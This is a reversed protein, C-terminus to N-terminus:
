RAMLNIFHGLVSIEGQSTLQSLTYTGNYEGKMLQNISTVKLLTPQKTESTFGPFFTLGLVGILLVSIVICM